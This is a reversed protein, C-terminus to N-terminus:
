SWDYADEAKEIIEDVDELFKVFVNDVNNETLRYHLGENSYQVSRIGNQLSLFAAILFGEVMWAVYCRTPELAKDRAEKEAVVEDISSEDATTWGDSATGDEALDGHDGVSTETAGDDGLSDDIMAAAMAEVIAKEDVGVSPASKKPREWLAATRKGVLVPSATGGRSYYAEVADAEVAAMVDEKTPRHFGSATVRPPPEVPEVPALSLRNARWREFYAVFGPWDRALVEYSSLTAHQAPDVEVPGRKDVLTIDEVGECKSALPDAPDPNDGLETPPKWACYVMLDRTRKADDADDAPDVLLFTYMLPRLMHWEQVIRLGYLTTFAIEADTEFVEKIERTDEM